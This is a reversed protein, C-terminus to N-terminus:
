LRAYCFERTWRWRALSIWGRNPTHTESSATEIEKTVALVPFSPDLIMVVHDREVRTVTRHFPRPVRSLSSPVLTKNNSASHEKKKQRLNKLNALSQHTSHPRSFICFMARVSSLLVACGGRDLVSLATTCWLYLTIRVMRLLFFM